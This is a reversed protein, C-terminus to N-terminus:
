GLNVSFPNGEKTAEAKDIIGDNLLDFMNRQAKLNGIKVQDWTGQKFFEKYATEYHHKRAYKENMTEEYTGDDKKKVWTKKMRELFAKPYASAMKMYQVTHHTQHEHDISHTRDEAQIEETCDRPLDDFIVAKGATFTVGVAGASYTAIMVKRDQTNQYTIREYDMALMPTGDPDPVPFGKIDMEWGGKEHKKFLMEKGEPNKMNGEKSTVGTYLSPAYKKLLEAYKEAQANYQCFIVVKRGEKLCKEVARKMQVAKPDEVGKEGVYAPNNAIQRLAHLKGFTFENGRLGDMKAIEDKPVYKDYKKTWKGWDKFLEYTAEAQKMTMTFTGHKAPPIHEKKPLRHKQDAVPVKPDMEELVDEKRFRIVFQDKLISLTRLAEHDNAPFAKSFAKDSSFRVDHPYLHHFMRRMMKPDKFPTASLLLQFKGNLRRAGKSQESALNALGHAEDQVIITEENALLAYRPDDPHARLFEVNTVVHKANNKQLKEIRKKSHLNRLTLVNSDVLCKEAEEGWASVVSNPAIITAPDGNIAVLATRTKGLGPANALIVGADGKAIRRQIEAVCYKQFFYLPSDKKVNPYTSRDIRRFNDLVKNLVKKVASSKTTAILREVYDRGEEFNKSFKRILVQETQQVVYNFRGPDQRIDNLAAKGMADLLKILAEIDDPESTQQVSISIEPGVKKDTHNVPVLTIENLEGISLPVRVRFSGDPNTRVRIERHGSIMVSDADPAHGTILYVSESTERLTRSELVIPSLGPKFESYDFSKRVSLRKFSTSVITDIDKEALEPHAIKIYLKLKSPTGGLLAVAETLDLKEIANDVSEEDRGDMWDRFYQLGGAAFRSDSLIARKLNKENLQEINYLTDDSINHLRFLTRFDDPIKCASVQKSFSLQLISEDLSRAHQSMFELFTKWGERCFRDDRKITKYISEFGNDMLWRPKRWEGGLIGHLRFLKIFDDQTECAAIQKPVSLALIKIDLVPRPLPGLFKQFFPWKGKTFRENQIIALYLKTYGNRQLYSSNRCNEASSIGHLDFLKLFDAATECSAVQRAYSYQLISKDLILKPPPGMFEIFSSWGHKRFRSDAVINKQLTGFRNKELWGTSRWEEGAIGHLSFLTRFDNSTKCVSIQDPYSRQLITKDLVLTNLGMFDLFEDWSGFRKAILTQMWKLGVEDLKHSSRWVSESVGHLAFLTRFDAPISCAAVQIRYSFEKVKAEIEKRVKPKLAEGAAARMINQFESISDQKEPGKENEESGDERPKNKAM